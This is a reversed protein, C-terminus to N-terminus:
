LADHKEKTAEIFAKCSDFTKQIDENSPQLEAFKVLDCHVLFTELLGHHEPPLAGRGRVDELFEETTQEPAHLGFRDEIYRRLIDSVGQYFRKVEGKAVLDQRVLAELARYAREHAPIRRRVAEAEQRRRRRWLIWGGAALGAAACVAAAWAWRGRTRPLAVPPAIEHIDLDTFQEPLLSTVQVTVAETELEHPEGDGARARFTITMPPVTYEGSLFPELVYSRTIRTRNGEVLEPRSTHYDVIGFSELKEGLGPLEAEYAEDTTVELALSLRDAITLTTRDLTMVVSVPGREYAKRLGAEDPTEGEGREKACAALLMCALVASLARSGNRM